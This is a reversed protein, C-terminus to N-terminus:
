YIEVASAKLHKLVEERIRQTIPDLALNIELGGEDPLRVVEIPLVLRSTSTIFAGQWQGQKLATLTPLREVIHIGSEHCVQLVLKMITGLLVTGPPATLLQYRDLAGHDTPVNPREEVVFLNSSLGETLHGDPGDLLLVENTHPAMGHYLAQRDSVWQSDKAEPNSRSAQRIEVQCNSQAPQKLASIQVACMPAHDQSTHTNITRKCLALAETLEISPAAHYSLLMTVKAEGAGSKGDFYTLLGRKVLPTVLHDLATVDRTLRAFREAPPPEMSPPAEVLDVLRRGDADAWTLHPLMGALSDCLRRLHGHYDIISRQHFTRACTYASRGQAIVFEDTSPPEADVTITLTPDQDGRDAQLGTRLTVAQIPRDAMNRVTLHRVFPFAPLTCLTPLRTVVLMRM